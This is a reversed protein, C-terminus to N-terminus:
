AFYDSLQKAQKFLRLREARVLRRNLPLRLGRQVIRKRRDGSAMLLQYLPVSAAAEEVKRADM